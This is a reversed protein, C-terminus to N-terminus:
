SLVCANGANRPFFAKSFERYQHFLFLILHYTLVTVAFHYKVRINSLENRSFIEMCKFM